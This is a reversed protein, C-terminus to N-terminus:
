KGKGGSRQNKRATTDCKQAYPGRTTAESVQAKTVKDGNGQMSYTARPRGDRPTLKERNANFNERQNQDGVQTPTNSGRSSRAIVGFDKNNVFKNTDKM